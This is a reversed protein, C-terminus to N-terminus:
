TRYMYLRELRSKIKLKKIFIEFDLIKTLFYLFFM